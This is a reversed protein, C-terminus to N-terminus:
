VKNKNIKVKLENDFYSFLDLTIESQSLEQKLDTAKRPPFFFCFELVSSLTNQYKFPLFRPLFYKIKKLLSFQLENEGM